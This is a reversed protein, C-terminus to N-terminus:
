HLGGSAHVVEGTIWRADESVLFAVVDAIVEPRGLRRLATQGILVERYAAPIMGAMMDTETVGPSVANVTIGRPGLEAAHSRTLTEVAAKTASYVSMTPPASQAAGSTINVIRGWGRDGFARAAEQTAFLVGRVNLAFHDEYHAPDIEELSARAAIAANNILIDLQGFHELVTSFLRPIQALDAMDAQVAFAKGGATEIQAVLEGAASARRNYNVAVAAGDRALRRAIAAGIGRSAGTVLAVRSM